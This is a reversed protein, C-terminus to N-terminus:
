RGKEVPKAVVEIEFISYLGRNFQGRKTLHVMLHRAIVPGAEIESKDTAMWRGIQVQGQEFNFVADDISKSDNVANLDAREEFGQVFGRQTWQSPEAVFDEASTRTRLSFDRAFAIDWDIAVQLVQMDKGLDVAIWENRDGVLAASNWQRREGTVVKHAGDFAREPTHPPAFSSARVVASRLDVKSPQDGKWLIMTWAGALLLVGGISGILLRKSFRPPRDHRNSDGQWKETAQLGATALLAQASPPRQQPDKSLCQRIVNEIEPPIGHRIGKKELTSFLLPAPEHQIKRIIDPGQFAPSGALLEFLCAGVSYIDDTVAAPAGALQQPSMYAIATPNVQDGAEEFEKIVAALGFDALKLAGRSDLMLNVPTIHRHIIGRSHAYALADCLARLWLRVETWEFPLRGRELAWARLNTGAVREMCIFAPEGAAAYLEHMRVIHRHSLIHSRSVERRVVALATPNGAIKESLFKLAVPENTQEDFAHWVMGIRGCGIGRELRFRRRGVSQGVEFSPDGKSEASETRPAQTQTSEPFPMRPELLWAVPM